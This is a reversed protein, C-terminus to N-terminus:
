PSVTQSSLQQVNKVAGIAAIVLVSGIGVMATTEAVARWRKSNAGVLLGGFSAALAGLTGGEVAGVSQNSPPPPSVAYGVAAGAATVAGLALLAAFVVGESTTPPRM